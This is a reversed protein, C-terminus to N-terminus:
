SFHAVIELLLICISLNFCKYRFLIPKEAIENQHFAKPIQPPGEPNPSIEEILNWSLISM